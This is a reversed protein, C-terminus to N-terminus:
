TRDQQLQHQVCERLALRVRHLSVFVNNPTIGLQQAIRGPSLERLYYMELVRKWRGKLQRMCRELASQRIDHRRAIRFYEQEYVDSLAEVARHDLILHGKNKKESYYKRVMIRAIGIVWAAFPRERDYEDFKKVTMVAVNQLVDDADQFDPILSGIYGAVVPQHQAWYVALEESHPNGISM